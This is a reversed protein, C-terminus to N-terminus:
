TGAATSAVQLDALAGFGGAAGRRPWGCYGPWAIPGGGPDHMRDWPRRVCAPVRRPRRKDNGIGRAAPRHGVQAPYAQGARQQGSGARARHAVGVRSRGAPPVELASPPLAAQLEARLSPTLVQGARAVLLALEYGVVGVDCSAVALVALCSGDSISMVLRQQM